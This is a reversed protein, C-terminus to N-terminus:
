VVFFIFINNKSPTLQGRNLCFDRFAMGVCGMLAVYLPVALRHYM